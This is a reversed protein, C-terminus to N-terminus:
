CWQDGTSMRMPFFFSREMEPTRRANLRFEPTLPRRGDPLEFRLLNDEQNVPITVAASAVAPNFTQLEHLAAELRAKQTQNLSSTSTAWPRDATEALLSGKAHPLFDRIADSAPTHAHLDARVRALAPVRFHAPSRRPCTAILAHLSRRRLVTLAPTLRSFRTPASRLHRSRFSSRGTQLRKRM